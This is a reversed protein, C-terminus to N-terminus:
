FNIQTTLTFFAMLFGRFESGVSEFRVKGNRIAVFSVDSGNKIRSNMTSKIAQDFDTEGNHEPSTEASMDTAHATNNAFREGHHTSINKRFCAHRQQRGEFFYIEALSPTFTQQYSNETKKSSFRTSISDFNIKISKRLHLILTYTAFSVYIM